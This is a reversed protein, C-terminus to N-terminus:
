NGQGGGGQGGAAGGGNGQGGGGGGGGGRNGGGFGGRGGRGGGFPNSYKDNYTTLQENTLFKSLENTTETKLTEWTTRMQEFDPPSANDRMKSRMEDRKAQEDTLVKKLQDAQFANLKLEKAIEQLRQDFREQDRQKREEERKKDEAAKVDAIVQTIEERFNEPLKQQPDRLSAVLQEIEPPVATSADAKSADVRTTSEVVPRDELMSIRDTLTKNDKELRALTAKLTELEASSGFDHSAVDGPNILFTSTAGGVLGVLASVLIM